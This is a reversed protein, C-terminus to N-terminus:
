KYDGFDILIVNKFILQSFLKLSVTVTIDIYCSIVIHDFYKSKQCKEGTFGAPCKCTFSMYADTCM